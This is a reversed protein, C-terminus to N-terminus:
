LNNLPLGSPDSSPPISDCDQIDEMVTKGKSNMKNYNGTSFSQKAESLEGLVDGYDISCSSYRQKLQPNATNLILNHIKDIYNFANVNAKDIIIPSLLNPDAGHDAVGPILKFYLYLNSLKHRACIHGVQVIIPLYLSVGFSLFLPLLFFRILSPKAFSHAM